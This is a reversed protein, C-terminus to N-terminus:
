SIFLLDCAKPIRQLFAFFHRLRSVSKNQKVSKCKKIIKTNYLNKQGGCISHLTIKKRMVSKDFFCVEAPNGVLTQKLPVNYAQGLTKVSTQPLKFKKRDSM